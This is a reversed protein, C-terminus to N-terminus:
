TQKFNLIQFENSIQSKPNLIEGRPLTTFAISSFSTLEALKAELSPESGILIVKGQDMSFEALATKGVLHEEGHIWGSLLPDKSSYHVLSLGRSLDFVPTHRFM